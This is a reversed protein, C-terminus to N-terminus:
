HEILNECVGFFLFKAPIFLKPPIKRVTKPEFISFIGTFNYCTFSHRRSIIHTSDNKFAEISKNIYELFDERSQIDQFDLYQSLDIKSYLTRYMFRSYRTVPLRYTVKFTLDKVELTKEELPKLIQRRLLDKIQDIEEEDGELFEIKTFIRLWAPGYTCVLHFEVDNEEPKTQTTNASIASVIGTSVLILVMFTTILIKKMNNLVM